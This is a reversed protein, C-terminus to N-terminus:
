QKDRVCRVSFKHSKSELSLASDGIFTMAYAHDNNEASTTSSWTGRSYYNFEKKLSKPMSKRVTEISQIELINPLRWNDYQALTLKSCYETAGQWNEFVTGVDKNDQWILNTNPDYVTDNSKRELPEEQITERITKGRVCRTLLPLNISEGDEFWQDIGGSFVFYWYIERGAFSFQAPQGTWYAKDKFYSFINQNELGYNYIHVFEKVIPLRWDDYGGLKLDSCHAKAENLTRKKNITDISDEWQLGIVNDVIIGATSNVEVRRYSREIGKKYYGDDYNAYSTTQGTKLVKSSSTVTDDSVTYTGEYWKSILKEGEFIGVRYKRIGAKSIPNSTYSFTTRTTDPTMDIPTLFGNGGDGLSLKLSYIDDIKNKAKVQFDFATNVKQTKVPQLTLTALSKEFFLIMNKILPKKSGRTHIKKSNLTIAVQDGVNLNKNVKISLNNKNVSVEYQSITSFKGDKFSEVGIDGYRLDNINQDFQITITNDSYFNKDYKKVQLYLDSNLSDFNVEYALNKLFHKFDKKGRNLRYWDSFSAYGNFTFFNNAIVDYFYLKTDSDKIDINIKPQAYFQKYASIDILLNDNKPVIFGNKHSVYVIKSIRSRIDLGIDFPNNNTVRLYQKGDITTTSADIKNKIINADQVRYFFTDQIKATAPATYEINEGYPQYFKLKMYQRFIGRTKNQVAMNKNSKDQAIQWANYIDLRYKNDGLREYEDSPGNVYGKVNYMDQFTLKENISSNANTTFSTSFDEFSDLRESDDNSKTIIFDFNIFNRNKDTKSMNTVYNAIDGEFFVNYQPLYAVDNGVVVLYSNNNGKMINTSGNVTKRFNLDDMGIVSFPANQIKLEGKADTKIMFYSKNVLYLNGTVWSAINNAAEALKVIKSWGGSALGAVIDKVMGKALSETALIGYSITKNVVFSVIAGTDMNKYDEISKQISKLVSLNTLMSEKIYNIFNVSDMEKLINSFEALFKVKVEFYGYGYKDKFAQNINVKNTINKTKKKINITIIDMLVSSFAVRRKGQKQKLLDYNGKPNIFREVMAAVSDQMIQSQETQTDFINIINGLAQNASNIVDLTDNINKLVKPTEYGKDTSQAILEGITMAIQTAVVTNEVAKQTQLTVNILKTGEKKFKEMAQSTDFSVFTNLLIGIARTSNLIDPMGGQWKYMEYVRSQNPKIKGSEFLSGDLAEYGISEKAYQDFKGFYKTVSAKVFEHLGGAIGGEVPNILKVGLNDASFFDFDFDVEKGNIKYPRVGYYVDFFNAYAFAKEKTKDQIMITNSLTIPSISRSRIIQSNSIHAKILVRLARLKKFYEDNYISNPYKAFLDQLKLAESVSIKHNELLWTGYEAKKDDVIFALDIDMFVRALLTTKKNMKGKYSGANFSRFVIQPEETVTGDDKVVKKTNTAVVDSLKDAYGEQNDQNKSIGKITLKQKEESTINENIVFVSNASRLIRQNANKFIQKTDKEDAYKDLIDSILFDITQNFGVKTAVKRFEKIDFNIFNEDKINSFEIDQVKYENNLLSKAKDYSNSVKQLELTSALKLLLTSLPTLYLTEENGKYLALLNGDFDNNSIKGGISKILLINTKLNEDIELEFSGDKNTVNSFTKLVKGGMDIIELTAGVIAEDYVYGSIKFTKAQPSPSPSPAPNVPTKGDDKNGDDKKDKENSTNNDPSKKDDKDSTTNQDIQTINNENGSPSKKSDGGGGGCASFTLVILTSLVLKWFQKM